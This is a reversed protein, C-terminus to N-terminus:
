RRTAVVIGLQERDYTDNNQEVPTCKPLYFSTPRPVAFGLYQILVGAVAFSSADTRVTILKGPDIHQM